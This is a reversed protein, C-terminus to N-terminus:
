EKFSYGLSKAIYMCYDRLSASKAMTLNEEKFYYHIYVIFSIITAFIVILTVYGLLPALDFAYAIGSLVLTILVVSTPVLFFPPKDKSIRKHLKEFEEDRLESRAYITMGVSSVIMMTLLGYLLSTGQLVGFKYSVIGVMFSIGMSSFFMLLFNKM